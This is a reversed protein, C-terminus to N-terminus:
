WFIDGETMGKAILLALNVKFESPKLRPHIDHYPINSFDYYSVWKVVRNIKDHTEMKGFVKLDTNEKFSYPVYLLYLMYKISPIKYCTSRRDSFREELFKVTIGAESNLEQACERFAVDKIDNDCEESKGGFDEWMWSQNRDTLKQLLMHVRGRPDETYLIVGASIYPKNDITFVPRDSMLILYLDIMKECYLDRRYNCLYLTNCVLWGFISFIM